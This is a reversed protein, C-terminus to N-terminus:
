GAPEALDVNVTRALDDIFQSCATAAAAADADPCCVLVSHDPRLRVDARRGALDRLEAAPPRAAFVFKMGGPAPRIAAIGLRGASIRLRHARVLLRAAVPLRGFRDILLDRLQEIEALSAAGAFRSYIRMREVPSPCYMEPLCAAGGMDVITEEPTQEGRGIRSARRVMNRFAEIGVDAVAGSQATGLLEGAGRIELDRMAIMHGGGLRSTEAITQLRRRAPEGLAALPALFYAYAQRDSRGVRGRLQHLQALGYHNAHPVVITNANPVDIGSQVVISCVLVDTHGDYFSRMTADMRDAGLRAHVVAVRAGPALAQVREAAAQITDIRHHLYFVQGGRSLERALAERVTRDEDGAVFTRVAMRGAPPTAMLSLDRLGEMAMSLSRPIPTASMALVDVQSRLQKVREKHRVGFRNEEDIVALGLRPAKVGAALLAHTGIAIAPKGAALLARAEASRSGARSGAVLLLEAGTGAFRESFSRFHQEALLTTPVLVFVQRGARWVAWAARMAIETKGFGVDGCLLRDMPLGAGLDALVEADVRVQCATEPHPFGACFAAYGDEDIGVPPRGGARERRSYIALLGAAADVAAAFARQRVRKWRRGGLRDLEIREDPEQQRYCTVEHCSAVAVYLKAQRAYEIAIFEQSRQGDVLTRLGLFRGVGHQTTVVLDGPALEMLEEFAAAAAAAIEPQPKEHQWRYLETETILATNARRDVFGGTLPLSCLYLGAAAAEAPSDVAAAQRGMASLAAALQERRAFDSVAFIVKGSFRALWGALREHRCQRSSRFALDPLREYGCDDGKRDYRCLPHATCAKELIGRDAFVQAPPLAAQGAGAAEDHREEVLQAFEALAPEIGKGLWIADAPRLYDLASYRGGFFLPLLFEIGEAERGASVAEYIREDAAAPIRERWARRFATIAADDLAYDRAALLDFRDVRGRSRQSAPDFVRIQEISDDDLVLRCPRGRGAPYVDIQGGYVAFEGPGRVREVAVCGAEAFLAQLGAMDVKQGVELGGGGIRFGAPPACPLMLSAASVAYVGPRGQRLCALAASRACVASRPPSAVDYPLMEWGAILFSPTALAALQRHLRRASAEDALVALVCRAGALEGLVVAAAAAPLDAVLKAAGAAPLNLRPM